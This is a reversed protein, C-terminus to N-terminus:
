VTSSYLLLLDRHYGDFHLRGASVYGQLYEAGSREDPLPLSEGPRKELITDGKSNHVSVWAPLQVPPSKPTGAREINFRVQFLLLLVRAPSTQACCATGLLSYSRGRQMRIAIDLRVRPINTM